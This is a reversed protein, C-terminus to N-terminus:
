LRRVLDRFVIKNDHLHALASGVDRVVALRKCYLKRKKEKKACLSFFTPLEKKEKKWAKLTELLTTNLRDLLIFFNKDCYNVNAMGVMKIINDHCLVSLFKAEIAFDIVGSVFHQDDNREDYFTTHLQKIVIQRRGGTGPICDNAIKEREATSQSTTEAARKTDAIVIQKV